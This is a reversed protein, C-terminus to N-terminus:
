RVIMALKWEGNEDGEGTKSDIAFLNGFGAAEKAIGGISSSTSDPLGNGSSSSGLSHISFAYSVEANSGTDRDTARVRIVKTGVAANEPISIVYPNAEFIPRM